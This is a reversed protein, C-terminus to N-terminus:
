PAYHICIATGLHDGLKVINLILIDLTQSRLLVKINYARAVLSHRRLIKGEQRFGQPCLLFFELPYKTSFNQFNQLKVLICVKLKETHPTRLVIVPSLMAVLNEGKAVLVEEATVVKHGTKM